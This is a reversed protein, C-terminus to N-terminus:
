PVGDAESAEDLCGFMGEIEELVTEHAKRQEPILELRKFVPWEPFRRRAEEWVARDEESLTLGNWLNVRIGLVRMVEIFDGARGPVMGDPVEDSFYISGLPLWCSITSAQPDFRLADIRRATDETVRMM